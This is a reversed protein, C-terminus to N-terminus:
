SGQTNSERSEKTDICVFKYNLLINGQAQIKLDPNISIKKRGSGERVILKHKEIKSLTNRITQPSADHNHAASPNKVKKLKQELRIDAMTTCFSALDIQEVQALLTLCALDLESLVINNIYCHTIFQFKIIDEPEMKVQKNVLNVKAM